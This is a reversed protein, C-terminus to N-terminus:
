LLHLLCFQEACSGDVKIPASYKVIKLITTTIESIISLTEIDEKKASASNSMVIHYYSKLHGICNIMAPSNVILPKSRSM